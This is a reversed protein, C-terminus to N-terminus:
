TGSIPEEMKLTSPISARPGRVCYAMVKSNKGKLSIEGVPYIEFKGQIHQNTNESIIIRCPSDGLQPIVLDKDYSELRSAINVTDGLTTYKLRDSSGLSGAVVPGTNIGVRMRLTPLGREAMQANLTIVEQEMALACNVANYADMSIEAENTRAVPVGFDAKIADGIYNDVVGHHEMVKTALAEMYTNLWDMLVQPDQKESVSTFGQLDTFLITASLKQPRPRGGDLFQERNEWLSEAVEPSVHASFLKMLAARQVKERGQEIATSTMAALTTVVDIDERTYFHGSKKHGLALMGTFVENSFIPVAVSAGLEEFRRGCEVRNESYKPDEAVDYKTILKKETALLTLLPDDSQLVPHPPLEAVLGDSDSQFLTQCTPKGSETLVVGVTDVFLDKRLVQIVYSLFGKLDTLTALADSVSSITAKYDSAKRFFMFDVIDQVVRSVPNFAFVTLLAFLIPYVQESADGLLPDLVLTKVGTHLLFYGGAVAATMIAYGVTRKIYDDLDFLNHKVIAYAITAPFILLPTVTFAVPIGGLSAGHSRLIATVAPIPLALLAGWLVLKARARTLVSVSAWFNVAIAVVLFLAGVANYTTQMHHLTEYLPDNKYLFVIAIILAGSLLYPVVLLFTYRTFWQPRGPFLSSLHIMTAPFVLVGAYIIPVIGFSDAQYDFVNIFDLGMVLGSVFFTWSMATDPKLVFVLVGLLFLGLGVSAMVGFKLFADAWTFTMTPVVVEIVQTGRQISYTVPTGVFLRQIVESVEEVSTVPQENVTLIKDPFRIGAQSGTWHSPGPRDAMLNDFVVFGPFPLNVWRIVGISSVLSTFLFFLLLLCFLTRSLISRTTLNKLWFIPPLTSRSNTDM